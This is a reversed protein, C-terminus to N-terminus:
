KEIQTRGQKRNLRGMGDREQQFPRFTNNFRDLSVEQGKLFYGGPATAGHSDRLISSVDRMIM